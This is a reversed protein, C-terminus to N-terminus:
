SYGKFSESFLSDGAQNWNSYTIFAIDYMIISIIVKTILYAIYLTM